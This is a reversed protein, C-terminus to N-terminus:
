NVESFFVTRHDMAKKTGTLIIEKQLRIDQSSAGIRIEYKGPEILWKGASYHALQQPSLRIHIKRKEGANLEVRKFGRLLVPKEPLDKPVIYLQAIETGQRNGTNNVTFSIDIWRDSISTKDNIKLDGYQYTTYSLGFGFPYLPSNDTDNYGYRYGIEKKSDYKPYSMCLKASPNVNGFLIDAVANGGEEGPYWAQLIAACRSEFETIVQPRGGFIVLILPKGTNAIERLFAEQVDPLRIGRKRGEGTLWLNEGMAAIVVDSENIVKLAAETSTEPLGRMIQVKVPVRDPDEDKVPKIDPINFWNCGREYRVIMEKPAKNQLAERLTVLHPTTLNAVRIGSGIMSQFTYDGLLSQAADANPGVLAIKKTGGALPLIGNNKLLVVSQAALQFAADRHEKPDFELPADPALKTNDLLGMRAKLILARKVSANFRDIAIGGEALIEKLLLFTNPNPLEIDAGANMAQIADAKEKGDLREIAKYDSVIVGDFELYNRLIDTLLEKNGICKTGKFVHYGPMVSKVGGLRIVAEFPYLTEEYLEKENDIGGAYGAFHKATCSVGQRLGGQQLGNVFALGLRATLYGDEGFGEEMREFSATKCVDLMPSLALTSGVSRMTQATYGAKKEILVPNWSCASGIHQPYTTAGFACFGTLAEEHMIAPIKSPTETVLFHQLDKVFTRLEEPTLDKPMSYSFQSIHGIGNPIKERCKELSLKGNDDVLESSRIGCLQAIKEELTMKAFIAEVKKLNKKDEFNYNYNQNSPHRCYLKIPFFGSLCLTFLIIISNKM